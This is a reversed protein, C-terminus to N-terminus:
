HWVMRGRVIPLGRIDISLNLDRVTNKIILFQQYDKEGFYAVTPAVINFLKLVVTAVGDFHGPRSIGCLKRHLKGVSVTTAFGEPYMERADPCFLTDVGSNRLLAEDREFDRPYKDFDEGPGFQTPNVFISVVTLDNDKVSNAVLSM